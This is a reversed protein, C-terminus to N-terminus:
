ALQGTVLFRDVFVQTWAERCDSFMYTFILPTQNTCSELGDVKKVRAPLFIFTLTEVQPLYRVLVGLKCQM